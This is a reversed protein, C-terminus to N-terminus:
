KALLIKALNLLTNVFSIVGTGSKLYELINKKTAKTTGGFEPINHQSFAARVNEDQSLRYMYVDFEIDSMSEIMKCLSAIDDEDKPVDLNIVEEVNKYEQNFGRANTENKGSASINKVKGVGDYKQNFGMNM